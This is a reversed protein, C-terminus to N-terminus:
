RTRQLSHAQGPPTLILKAGAQAALSEFVTAQRRWEGLMPPAVPIKHSNDTSHNEYIIVLQQPSKYPLPHLLIANVVSFIATTASIGLALTLVAVANFGHHKMLQRYAYRLVNM